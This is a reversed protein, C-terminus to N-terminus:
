LHRPPTMANKYRDLEKQFAPPMKIPAPPPDTVFTLKYSAEADEFALPVGTEMDIWAKYVCTGGEPFVMTREYHLCKKNEFRVQGVLDEPRIWAISPQDVGALTAPMLDGGPVVYLEGTRPHQRVGYGSTTDKWAETTRNGIWQIQYCIVSGVRTMRIGTMIPMDRLDTQSQPPPLNKPNVQIQCVLDGAPYAALPSALLDNAGACLAGTLALLLTIGKRSNM